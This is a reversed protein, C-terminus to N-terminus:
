LEKEGMQYYVSEEEEQPAKPGTAVATAGSKVTTSGPLGPM